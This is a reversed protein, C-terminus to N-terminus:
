EEDSFLDPVVVTEATKVKAKRETKADLDKDSLTVALRTYFTNGTTSDVCTKIALEGSAAKCVDFGADVLIETIKDIMQSRISNATKVQRKGEANTLAVSKITFM